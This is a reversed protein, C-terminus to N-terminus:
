DRLSCTFSLFRTNLSFRRLGSSSFAERRSVHIHWVDGLPMRLVNHGQTIQKTNVYRAARKGCDGDWEIAHFRFPLAGSTGIMQMIDCSVVGDVAVQERPGVKQRSHHQADSIAIAGACVHIVPIM